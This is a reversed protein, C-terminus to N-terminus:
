EYTIPLGNMRVINNDADIILIDFWLNRSTPNLDLELEIPQASSFSRVDFPAPLLHLIEGRSTNYQASNRYIIRVLPENIQNNLRPPLNTEYSLFMEGDTVGFQTVERIVLTPTSTFTYQSGRQQGEIIGAARGQDYSNLNTLMASAVVDYTEGGITLRPTEQSQVTNLGAIFLM